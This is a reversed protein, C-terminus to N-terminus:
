AANAGFAFTDDGCEDQVAQADIEAWKDRGEKFERAMTKEREIYNLMERAAVKTIEKNIVDGIIQAAEGKTLFRDLYRSDIKLMAHLAWMQKRSVPEEKWSDYREWKEM